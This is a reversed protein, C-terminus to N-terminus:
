DNEGTLFPGIGRSSNNFKKESRNLLKGEISNEYDKVEKLGGIGKDLDPDRVYAVSKMFTKFDPLSPTKPKILIDINPLPLQAPNKDLVKLQAKAKEKVDEAVIIDSSSFDEYPRKGAIRNKNEKARIVKAIAKDGYEDEMHKKFKEDEIKKQQKEKFAKYKNVTPNKPYNPHKTQSNEIGFHKLKALHDDRKQDQFNKDWMENAKVADKMPVERGDNNRMTGTTSNYSYSLEKRANEAAQTFPNKNKTNQYSKDVIENALKNKNDKELKDLTENDKVFQKWAGDSKPDGMTAIKQEIEKKNM